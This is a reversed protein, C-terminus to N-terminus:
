NYGPDLKQQSPFHVDSTPTHAHTSTHTRPLSTCTYYKPFPVLRIEDRTEERKREREGGVENATPNQEYTYARSQLM